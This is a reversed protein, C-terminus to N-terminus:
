LEQILEPSSQALHAELAKALVKERNYTPIIVSLSNFAPTDPM